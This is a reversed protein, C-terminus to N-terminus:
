KGDTASSFDYDEIKEGNRRFYGGNHGDTLRTLTAMILTVSEEPTQRKTILLARPVSQGQLYEDLKASMGTDVYGPCIGAILIGHEKLDFSLNKTLLNFGAQLL